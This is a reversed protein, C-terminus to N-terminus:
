LIHRWTKLQIVRSVTTRDVGYIEALAKQTYGGQAYSSRIKRVDEKTLVSIVVGEGRTTRGKHDRDDINDQQTGLFLHKPNCCPPNDCRHLVCMGDPIPGYTLEWAVRHAIHDRNQFRLRGYGRLTNGSWPWCGNKTSDVRTWLREPLPGTHRLTINPDGHKRWRRYHKDCWGNSVIESDDCDPVKCVRRAKTICDSTSM